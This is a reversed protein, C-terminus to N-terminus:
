LLSSLISAKTVLGLLGGGEDTVAIPYWAESAMPIIDAVMTDPGVNPIQRCLDEAHKGSGRAELAEQLTLIGKLQMDNDIVVVSSLNNDRMVRVARDPSEKCKVISSPTIMINKVTAVKSRDASEIFEKVYDDAPNMTLEEPTGIQVVKGDKMICVTDGMKFAEDIDHTIFVITKKLKRQIQLLEFQMDKRVLPDLASFPEDMLLIEPDSVLARAIGVRQRMGGSLQDCSQYAWGDLGVMSIAEIAKKEREDRSMGRVELSYAVNNMVNRHSMLGFSQFVMSIKNRRYELLEKQPMEMVNQDRYYVGGDTPETLKNFCRVATSKGSGSLGIVVFIEGEPVDFTVDWLAVTCGTQKYVEDKNSGNQMMRAAESKNPGYLKNVHDM